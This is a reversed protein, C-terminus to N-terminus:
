WPLFPIGGGFAMWGGFGLLGVLIGILGIRVGYIEVLPGIKIPAEEVEVLDSGWNRVGRGVSSSVSVITRRGLTVGSAVLPKSFEAVRNFGASVVRFGQGVQDFGDDSPEEVLAGLAWFFALLGFVVVYIRAFEPIPALVSNIIDIIPRVPNPTM